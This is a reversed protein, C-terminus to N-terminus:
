YVTIYTHRDTFPNVYFTTCRELVNFVTWERPAVPGFQPILHVSCCINDVPIVLSECKGNPLFSHSIRYMLHNADTTSPFKTFWEVYALHKPPSTDESFM